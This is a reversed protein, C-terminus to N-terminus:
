VEVKEWEPPILDYWDSPCKPGFWVSPYLVIKNPNRNLWAGWWSFSSNAIINHDCLYMIALDIFQNKSNSYFINKGVINKKCWEIDDSTVIFVYNGLELFENITKKYYNIGCFPHFQPLKLYDGRRVHLSVTGMNKADGYFCRGVFDVAQKEFLPSVTFENLIDSYINQFYKYSQFYGQYDTGDPQAFASRDFHYFKEQYKNKLKDQKNLNGSSLNLKKIDCKQQSTKFEYGNQVSIGKISAYQFMQNGLRGYNGLQTFSIVM